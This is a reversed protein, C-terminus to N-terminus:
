YIILLTFTVCSKTIIWLLVVGVQSSPQLAYVNMLISTSALTSVWPGQTNYLCGYKPIGYKGVNWIFYAGFKADLDLILPVWGGEVHSHM